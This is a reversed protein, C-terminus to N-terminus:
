CSPWTLFRATALRRDLFPAVAGALWLPALAVNMSFAQALEFEWPTGTFDRQGELQPLIVEFFPWGHSWQWLLNPAALCVAIAAGFWTQPWALLRRAPTAIVGAALTVLWVGIGWKAEMACGALIGTWLLDTRQDKVLARTVLFAVGTWTIPEFTSTTLRCTLGVLGPAIGAALAAITVAKATGGILRAFAACLLVLGAAAIAAPLRLLWINIGFLQTAAAILPVIPPQDVYGFDPRWGCVLFYLENRHADYRGATALHVMAVCLTIVLVGPERLLASLSRRAAARRPGSCYWLSQHPDNFRYDRAPVAHGCCPNPKGFGHMFRRNVRSGKNARQWPMTDLPRLSASKRPLVPLGTQHGKQEIACGCCLRKQVDFAAVLWNVDM